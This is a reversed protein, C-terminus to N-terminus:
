LYVQISIKFQSKRWDLYLFHPEALTLAAQAKWVAVDWHSPLGIFIHVGIPGHFQLAPLEIDALQGPVAFITLSWFLQMQFSTTAFLAFMAFSWDIFFVRSCVSCYCFICNTSYLNNRLWCCWIGLLGNEPKQLPSPIVTLPHFSWAEKWHFLRQNWLLKNPWVQSHNSHPLCGPGQSQLAAPWLDLAM